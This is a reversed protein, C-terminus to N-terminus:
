RITLFDQIPTDYPKSCSRFETPRTITLSSMMVELMHAAFESGVTSSMHLTHKLIRELRDM